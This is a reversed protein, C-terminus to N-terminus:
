PTPGLPTTSGRGAEGSASADVGWLVEQGPAKNPFDFLEWSECLLERPRSLNNKPHESDLTGGPLERRQRRVM